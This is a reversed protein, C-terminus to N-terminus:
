IVMNNEEKKGLFLYGQAKVGDLLAIEDPSSSNYTGKKKDIVVTHCLALHMMVADVSRNEIHEKNSLIHDLVRKSHFPHDPVNDKM